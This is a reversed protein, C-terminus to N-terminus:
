VNMTAPKRAELCGRKGPMEVLELSNEFLGGQLAFPPSSRCNLDIIYRIAIEVVRLGV